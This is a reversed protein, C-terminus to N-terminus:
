LGFGGMGGMLKQVEAQQIATAKNQADQIAVLILDELSEVDQPDVAEARVSLGTVTGSGNATVTVLGGGAQGTVVTAELKAQMEGQSSQAKQLQKMMKQMNMAPLKVRERVLPMPPCASSPALMDAGFFGLHQL